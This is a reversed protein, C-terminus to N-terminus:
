LRWSGRLTQGLLGQNQRIIKTFDAASVDRAGLSALHTTQVQCDILLFDRKRLWEVLTLFAAKSANSVRAFMSEGCFVRGLSVGYLGGVLDGNQWAEVSHALGLSHLRLYAARMEANLWSSTEEEARPTLACADIVREFATDMRIEFEGRQLIKRMSKSVVAEELFLVFRPDPYWWIIPEEESENYWPFIGYQYALILREMSLDGGLALIGESSVQELPPFYLPADTDLWHYM